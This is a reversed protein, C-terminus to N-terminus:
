EVLGRGKGLSEGERRRIVEICDERARDDEEENRRGRAM